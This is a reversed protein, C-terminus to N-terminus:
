QAVADGEPAMHVATGAVYALLIFHGIIVQNVVPWGSPTTIRLLKEAPLNRHSQAVAMEFSNERGIAGTNTIVTRYRVIFSKMCPMSSEFTILYHKRALLPPHRCIARRITM